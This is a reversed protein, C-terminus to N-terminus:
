VRGGQLQGVIGGIYKYYTVDNVLIFEGLVDYANKIRGRWLRRFMKRYQKDEQSAQSSM